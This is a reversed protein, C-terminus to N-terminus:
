TIVMKISASLNSIKPQHFAALNSIKPQHFASLHQNKASSM